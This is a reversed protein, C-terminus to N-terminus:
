REKYPMTVLLGQEKHFGENSLRDWDPIPKISQTHICNEGVVWFYVTGVLDKM